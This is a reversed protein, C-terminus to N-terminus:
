DSGALSVASPLPMALGRRWASEAEAAPLTARAAGLAEELERKEEAVLPAGTRLRLAAAAGALTLARSGAGADAASVALAELLRAVGRRHRLLDFQSLAERYLERARDPEGRRRALAGLDSLCSGIGWSNGLARFTELGERCLREADELQGLERAVEGAHSIAWARSLPDGGRAFRDAAEDYLERARQHEDRRRALFALNCLSRSYGAEDGLAQWTAMADHLAESAGDADDTRTLASGLGNLAVAQGWSDGLQRHLEWSERHREAAGAHDGVTHQLVGAAFLARALNKPQERAGPLAVVAGLQRTGEALHEAREWFHFLAVALRLGWEVNGAAILHALAALLNDHDAELRALWAPDEGRALVAGGEEALVLFYAAHARRVRAAEGSAQLWRQAGERITLLMAFRPEGAGDDGATVLLSKDALSAIGDVLELGLEDFPDAVGHVAELTFGGSFVGLRRFLAQEAASLLEYSWDITRQLTQQRGPLDRVGGGPLAQGAELRALMAQPSLLRCRAATLELALPLGDLRACLRAVSAANEATLAFAPNAARARDVFLAVAPSRRVEELQAQDLSAVADMPGPEVVALPPVLLDHEGYVHLVERSTVLARLAPCAQLLEGVAPAAAVIQEFNDLVLLMAGGRAVDERIADLPSVAVADGIGLERAVTPLLLAPDDLNALSVFQVRQSGAAAVKEAVALALRTKGTGGPGSLTLLRVAPDALLTLIRALEEDRGVLPTRAAPLAAGPRVGLRVEVLVERLLAAVEGTDDYRHAADKALCRRVIADLRPPADARLLAIPPPDDRLTAALVEPMSRGDFAKRGTVMEYLIAGLSFQDARRDVDGGTVAEPALFGLTGLITGEGTLRRTAAGSDAGGSRPVAPRPSRLLALGFDLVKAVGSSTVVVNEPKLDRHVVGRAHAAALGEAIQVGLDLAREISLRRRFCDRLSEGEVLEMVLYPAGDHDGVDFITVVNPHLLASAARAEIEFRTYASDGDRPERSRRRGIVKIAVDRGLRPDRARFVEGMGGEGIHEVLEFRGLRDGVALGPGAAEAQAQSAHTTEHESM